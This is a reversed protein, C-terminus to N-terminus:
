NTFLIGQAESIIDEENDKIFGEIIGEIDRIQKSTMETINLNSVSIGSLVIEAETFTYYIGKHKKHGVMTMPTNTSFTAEVLLELPSDLGTTSLVKKMENKKNCYLYKM